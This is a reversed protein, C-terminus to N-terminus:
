SSTFFCGLHLRVWKRSSLTRGIIPQASIKASIKVSVSIDTDAFGIDTDAYRYRNDAVHIDAIDTDALYQSSVRSIPWYIPLYRYKPMIDALSVYRYRSPLFIPIPLLIPESFIDTDTDTDARGM